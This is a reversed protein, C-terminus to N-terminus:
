AKRYLASLGRGERKLTGKEVLKSAVASASNRAFGRAQFDQAISKLSRSSTGLLDMLLEPGSIGKDRKGGAYRFTKKKPVSDDERFQEIKVVECSGELTDIIVSMRDHPVRLHMDFM